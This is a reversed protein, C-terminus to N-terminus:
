TRLNQHNKLMNELDIVDDLNLFNSVKINLPKVRMSQHVMFGEIISKLENYSLISSIGHNMTYSSLKTCEPLMSSVQAGLNKKSEESDSEDYSLSLHRM